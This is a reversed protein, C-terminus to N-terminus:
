ISTKVVAPSVVNVRIHHEALEMVRELGSSEYLNAQLPVTIGYKSLEEAASELKEFDNGVILTKTGSELLKRAVAYGMGSSGGVIMAWAEKSTNM